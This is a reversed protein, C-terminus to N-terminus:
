PKFSNPELHSGSLLDSFIQQNSAQDTKMTYYYDDDDRPMSFYKNNKSKDLCDKPKNKDKNEETLAQSVLLPLQENIDMLQQYNSIKNLFPHNNYYAASHLLNSGNNNPTILLSPESQLLECVLKASEEKNDIKQLLIHAATNGQKDLPRKGAEIAQEKIAKNILEDEVPYKQLLLALPTFGEANAQYFISKNPTQSMFEMLQSVADHNSQMLAAHLATNEKDDLVNTIKEVSLDSLIYQISKPFFYYTKSQHIPDDAGLYHKDLLENLFNCHKLIVNFRCSNTHNHMMQDRLECLQAFVPGTDASITLSLLNDINPHISKSNIFDDTNESQSNERWKQLFLQFVTLGDKNKQTLLEPPFTLQSSLFNNLFTVNSDFLLNTMLHFINNGKDDIGYLPYLQKFFELAPPNSILNPSKMLESTIQQIDVQKNSIAQQISAAIEGKTLVQWWNGKQIMTVIIASFEKSESAKRLLDMWPQLKSDIKGSALQEQISIPKFLTSSNITKNLYFDKKIATMLPTVGRADFELFKDDFRDKYETNAFYEFFMGLLHPNNTVLLQVFNNKNDPAFLPALQGTEKYYDLFIQAVGVSIKQQSLLFELDNPKQTLNVGLQIFLELATTNNQVAALQLANLHVYNHKEEPEVPESVRLLFQEKNQNAMLELARLNNKLVAEYAFNVENHRFDPCLSLLSDFEESFDKTLAIGVAWQDLIYDLNNAVNAEKKTRESFTAFQQAIKVSNEKIFQTYTSWFDADGAGNQAALRDRYEQLDPPARHGIQAYKQQEDLSYEFPSSAVLTLMIYQRLIAYEQPDEQDLCQLFDNFFPDKWPRSQFFPLMRVSDPAEIAASFVESFSTDGSGGFLSSLVAISHKEANSIGKIERARLTLQRTSQPNKAPINITQPPSNNCTIELNLSLDDPLALSAILRKINIKEGSLNFLIDTNEKNSAAIATNILRRFADDSQLYAFMFDHQAFYEAPNQKQESDFFQTVLSLHKSHAEYFQNTGKEKLEKSLAIIQPDFKIGVEDKPILGMKHKISFNNLERSAENYDGYECIGSQTIEGNIQSITHSLETTLADSTIGRSIVSYVAPDIDAIWQKLAEKNELDSLNFNLANFTNHHSSTVVFIVPSPKNQLKAYFQEDLKEKDDDLYVIHDSINYSSDDAIIKFLNLKAPPVVLLSYVKPQVATQANNKALRHELKQHFENAFFLNHVADGIGMPQNITNLLFSKGQKFTKHLIQDIIENPKM